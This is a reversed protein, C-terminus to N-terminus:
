FINKIQYDVRTNGGNSEIVFDVQTRSENIKERNQPTIPLGIGYYISTYQYSSLLKNISDSYNNEKKISEVKQFDSFSFRDKNECFIVVGNKIAVIDPIISDKNKLGARNNSHLVKGTGSQPFDFCIISWGNKELWSIITKTVSEESIRREM